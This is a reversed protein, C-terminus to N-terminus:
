DSTPRKLNADDITASSFVLTIGARLWNSDVSNSEVSCCNKDKELFDHNSGFESLDKGKDDILLPGVYKEILENERYFRVDKYCFGFINLIFYLALAIYVFYLSYKYELAM